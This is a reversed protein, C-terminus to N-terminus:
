RIFEPEPANRRVDVQTSPIRHGLNDLPYKEATSFSEETAGLHTKLFTLVKQWSDEIAHAQAQPAGGLDYFVKDIPHIIKSPPLPLYPKQIAHGAGAYALHEYPHSFQKEQLREVVKRSFFASPWMQDDEGSILLIAANAKEVEITAEEIFKGNEMAFLFESTIAIAENPAYQNPDFESEYQVFPLTEGRYTWAPLDPDDNVELSGWRLHSPVYAVAVKINSFISALILSLEGGRSGGTVALREADVEPRAGLWALGKEFYELEIEALNDPCGPYAFYPLALAAYGHNALLAATRENSGGGSGTLTIIGPFPGTGSPLFLTGHLGDEEVSIRKVGERLWNREITTSVTENEQEATFIVSFIEQSIRSSSLPPKKEEEKPKLAWILGMSHSWDYDGSLPTEKDLDLNGEKDPMFTASSELNEEDMRARITVAQEPNLGSLQISLKEDILSQQPTITLKMM